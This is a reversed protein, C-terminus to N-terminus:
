PRSALATTQVIGTLSIANSLDAHSKCGTKAYISKLQSKCTNISLQLEAAAQRLTVGGFLICALRAEAETLRLAEKVVSVAPRLASDPDVIVLMCAPRHKSGSSNKRVPTAIVTLARQAVSRRISVAGGPHVSEGEPKLTLQITRQLERDDENHYAYIRRSSYGVGSGARLISQAKENALIVRTAEDILIVGFPLRDVVDGYMQNQKRSANFLHRLRTVRVLHAALPKYREVEHSEFPGQKSSRQISVAALSRSTKATWVAMFHPLDHAALLDSYIESREFEQRNPLMEDTVVAGVPAGFVRPIRVEKAAYYRRFRDNVAPDVGTCDMRVVIRSAPDVMLHLTGVGGAFEALSQLVATWEGEDTVSAYLQDIIRLLGASQRM